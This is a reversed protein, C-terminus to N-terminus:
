LQFIGECLGLFEVFKTMVIEEQVHRNSGTPSFVPRLIRAIQKATLPTTKKMMLFYTMDKNGSILDLM